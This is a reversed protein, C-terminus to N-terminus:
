RKKQPAECHEKQPSVKEPEIIWKDEDRYEVALSEWEKKRNEKKNATNNEIIQVNVSDSRIM